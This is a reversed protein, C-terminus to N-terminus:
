RFRTLGHSIDWWATGDHGDAWRSSAETPSPRIPWRRVSTDRRLGQTMACGVVRGLTAVLWSITLVLIGTSGPGLRPNCGSAARPLPQRDLWKTVESIRYKVTKPSM